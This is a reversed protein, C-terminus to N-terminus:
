ALVTSSNKESVAPGHVMVNDCLITNAFSAIATRSSSSSILLPLLSLSGPVLNSSTHSATIAPGHSVTRSSTSMNLSLGTANHALSSTTIPAQNTQTSCESVQSLSVDNVPLAPRHSIPTQSSLVGGENDSLASGKLSPDLM